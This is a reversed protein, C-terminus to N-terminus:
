ILLNLHCPSFYVFPILYGWLFNIGSHFGQNPTVIENIAAGTKMNPAPISLFKATAIKLCSEEKFNSYSVGLLPESDAHFESDSTQNENESHVIQVKWAAHLLHAKFYPKIHWKLVEEVSGSHCLSVITYIFILGVAKNSFFINCLHLYHCSSSFSSELSIKRGKQGPISNIRGSNKSSICLIQSFKWSPKEPGPHLKLYNHGAGEEDRKVTGEKGGKM